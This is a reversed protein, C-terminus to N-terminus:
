RQYRSDIPNLGIAVTGYTHVREAGPFSEYIRVGEDVDNAKPLMNQVGENELMARFSRYEHKFTIKCLVYSPDNYFCITEGVQMKQYIDWNIRGEAKKVREAIWQIYPTQNNSIIYIKHDAAPLNAPPDPRYIASAM